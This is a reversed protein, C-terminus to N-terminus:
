SPTDIYDMDHKFVENFDSLTSNISHLTPGSTVETVKFYPVSNRGRQKVASTNISIKLQKKTMTQEKVM